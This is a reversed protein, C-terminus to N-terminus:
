QRQSKSHPAINPSSRPWSAGPSRSRFRMNGKSMPGAVYPGALFRIHDFRRDGDEDSPVVVLESTKPCESFQGELVEGERRKLREADLARCYPTRM